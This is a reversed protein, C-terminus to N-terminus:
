KNIWIKNMAMSSLEASTKTNHEM